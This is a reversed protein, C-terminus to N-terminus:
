VIIKRLNIKSVKYLTQIPGRPYLPAGPGFPRSPYGPSIPGLPCGPMFPPRPTGPYTLYISFKRKLNKIKFMYMHALRYRLIHLFKGM